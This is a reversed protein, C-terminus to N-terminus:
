LEINDHKALKSAILSSLSGITKFNELNIETESFQFEFKEEVQMILEVFGLSDLDLGDGDLATNENFNDTNVPLNLEEDLITKLRDLISQSM